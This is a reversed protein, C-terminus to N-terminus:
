VAEAVPRPHWRARWEWLALALVPAYEIWVVRNHFFLVNDHATFYFKLYYMPLMLTLVLM